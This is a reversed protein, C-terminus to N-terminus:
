WVKPVWSFWGKKEPQPHCSNHLATCFNNASTMSLSSLKKGESLNLALFASLKQCNGTLPLQIGAPVYEVSGQFEGNRKLESFADNSLQQANSLCAGGLWTQPDIVRLSDEVGKENFKIEITTHHLIKQQTIRNTLQMIFPMCTVEAKTSLNLKRALIIADKVDMCMEFSIAANGNNHVLTNSGKKWNEHPLRNLAFWSSCSGCEAGLLRNSRFIQTSADMVYQYMSIPASAAQGLLDYAGKALSGCWSAKSNVVPAVELIPLDQVTKGHTSYGHVTQILELSDPTKAYLTPNALLVGGLTFITKVLNLNFITKKIM